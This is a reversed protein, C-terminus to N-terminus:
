KLSTEPVRQPTTLFSALDSLEALSYLLWYIALCFSLCYSMKNFIEIRRLWGRRRRLGGGWRSLGLM